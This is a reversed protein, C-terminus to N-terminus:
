RKKTRPKTSTKAKSKKTTRSAALPGEVIEVDDDIVEAKRKGAQEGALPTRLNDVDIVESATSMSLRSLKHAPSPRLSSASSPGSHQMGTRVSLAPSGKRSSSRREASPGAMAAAQAEDEHEGRHRGQGGDGEDLAIRTERWDRAFVTDLNLGDQFTHVSYQVMPDDAHTSVPVIHEGSLHTAFLELPLSAANKLAVREDAAREDGKVDQPSYEGLYETWEWPRNQVPMSVVLSGSAPDRSAYALDSVALNPSVYPLLSRLQVRYQQPMDRPLDALNFEPYNRFLDITTAKPDIPNEDLVYYLTDLLLPFALQDIASGVGHLLILQTLIACLQECKAKSQTTWVGPFGLYFQLLRALFIASHSAPNVGDVGHADDDTAAALMDTVQVFKTCLTSFFEDQIAADLEPLPLDQRFPKVVRALLRLVEGGNRVYSTIGEPRNQDVPENLIETMRRFGANLFKSAVPKCVNTAMEAVFDAEEPTKCNRFVLVTLKDLTASASARTADRSLSESFHKLSLRIGVATAALNWPSLLTSMAQWDTADSTDGSDSLLHRLAKVLPDHLDESVSPSELLREFALRVTDLDRYVGQHFVHVRHIEQRLFTAGHRLNEPLNKNYEMLVLIPYNGILSAFHPERFVDRRRTQLGQADFINMPPMRTGCEDKLLLHRFLNNVSALLVQVSLGQEQSTANAALNWVPYVLGELITTVTLAGRICLELLVMTAVDWADDNLAAMENKGAGVLWQLIHDDFGHPLHQDIHSLFAAYRLACSRRGDADPIMVPIQRLSAVTNDWVKWAWDPATMYKYWLNNALISPAEPNPDTALLLIEPLVQPVAEARQTMPYLAHTYASLDNLVQERETTGLYRGNDVEILFAMLARNHLGRSRWAQHTAFLATAITNMADMSAWVEVHQRLTQIIAVLLENSSTHELTSLTLDLMCGYSKTRAFLVTSLTYTQLVRNNVEHSDPEQSMMNKRLIPSLWQKIVNVQEFRPASLLNTCSEWFTTTLTEVPLPDGGFVEPLLARLERRIERESLDEPIERARVGYLVVKRQNILSSHSSHLPIWRLFVRHRSPNEENISLGAEGRAILRQVYELYSFLGSKVLKGFLLSVSLINGPDAAVESTDLWDFLHDQIAEDPFPADRRVAREEMKDRWLRLLTAAAYPRHDGYQLPTVSWTLLTDFKRSFSEPSDDFFAVTTMDTKGSISNLLRIDSLSSSLSGLVRSPLHQFLMAENRRQIDCLQEEVVQRLARTTQLSGVPTSSDFSDFLIEELITRHSLWTRPSVFADPLALFMRCILNKLATEVDSLYEKASTIRIESVKALCADAFFHTLARNTLMGDLYEDALRAVFGLQALNCTAMQQVLWSLFTRNDVLGESYFARLLSLSYTFRSIWRERSDPDTLIGRFSQKINLGPRPQSPLAIDALQKKLYGTVVNAWDVSYQTPIYSPKNRLGATENSGFVRLFWVARPIAVSHTHLLDLLDHGKAGHPVNKGLKALPVDPNALDAFWALRKVDNLTVRSPMRFTSAPIPPASDSRRTFIQDMLEELEQLANEHMLRSKVNDQASYTEAPVALPLVLGNKVNTETLIDEDQKIRPPYFGLYGTDASVHARPLWDPPHSEYIPPPEKDSKAM